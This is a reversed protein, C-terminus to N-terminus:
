TSVVVNDVVEINRRTTDESKVEALIAGIQLAHNVVKNMLDEIQPSM